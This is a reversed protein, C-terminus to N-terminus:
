AAMAEACDTPMATSCALAAMCNAESSSEWKGSTRVRSSTSAEVSTSTCAVPQPDSRPFPPVSSREWVRVDRGWGAGDRGCCADEPNWFGRCAGALLEWCGQGAAVM